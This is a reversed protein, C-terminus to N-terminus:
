SSKVAQTSASGATSTGVTMTPTYTGTATVIQYECAASPTTAALTNVSRFRSVELGVAYSINANAGACAIVMDNANTTTCTLGTGGSWNTGSTTGYVPACDSPSANQGSIENSILVGTQDYEHFCLHGYRCQWGHNRDVDGLDAQYNRRAYGRVSNGLTDACTTTGPDASSQVYIKIINGAHPNAATGGNYCFSSSAGINIM